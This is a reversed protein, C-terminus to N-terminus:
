IDNEKGKCSPLPLFQTYPHPQWFFFFFPFTSKMSVKWDELLLPDMHLVRIFNENKSVWRSQSRYGLHMKLENLFALDLFHM